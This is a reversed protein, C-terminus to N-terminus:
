YKYDNVNKNQFLLLYFFWIHQLKKGIKNNFNNWM